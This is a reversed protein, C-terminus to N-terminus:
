PGLIDSEDSADAQLFDERTKEVFSNATYTSLTAFYQNTSGSVVYSDELLAGIRLTYTVEMPTDPESDESDASMSERTVITIIAQPENLGYSEEETMGLPERLRLNSAQSLLASLSTPDFTEGEELGLMTWEDDVKEFEFVGNANELTLHIAAEQPFSFYLTDIWLGIRPSAEWSTLGGVLYVTDSDDVRMHTANAGATTGVYLRNRQQGQEIEVMAEYNNEAVGLRSHSSRSQAILRDNTLGAIKALFTDIQTTQAPFDDADPLVWEGDQNRMIVLEEGEADHFVLQTVSDPSFDEILPGGVAATKGTEPFYVIGAIVLQVILAIALIQNSKSM